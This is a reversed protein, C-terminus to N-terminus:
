SIVHVQRCAPLNPFEYTSNDMYDGELKQKKKKEEV